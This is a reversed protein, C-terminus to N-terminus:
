ADPAEGHGVGCGREFGVVVDGDEVPVQLVRFGRGVVEELVEARLCRQHLHRHAHARQHEGQAGAHDVLDDRRFVRALELGLHLHHLTDEVAGDEVEDRLDHQEGIAVDVLAAALGDGAGEGELQHFRHAGLGGGDSRLDDVFMEALARDVEELVERGLQGGADDGVNEADRAGVEGDEHAPDAVRSFRDAENVHRAAGGDFLREGFEVGIDVLQQGVTAGIRAAVEERVIDGGGGCRAVEGLLFDARLNHAENKGSGVGRAIRHAHRQRLEQMVRVLPFGEAGIRIAELFLGALFAQAVLGDDGANRADSCALELDLAEENRGAGDGHDRDQRDQAVGLHVCVRFGEVDVAGVLLAPVEGEAGAGM